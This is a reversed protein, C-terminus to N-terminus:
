HQCVRSLGLASSVSTLVADFSNKANKMCVNSVLPVNSEEEKKERCSHVCLCGKVLPGLIGRHALPTGAHNLASM